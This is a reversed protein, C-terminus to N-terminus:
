PGGPDFPSWDGGSVFAGSIGDGAFSTVDGSGYWGMAPMGPQGYGFLSGVGQGIAPAAASFLAGLPNRQSDYMAQAAGAQFANQSNQSQAALVMAPTVYNSSLNYLSGSVTGYMGSMFNMAQNISNMQTQYASLGLDRLTTNLHAGSGSTGGAWNREASRIMTRTIDSQPLQGSLGSMINGMATQQMDRWGPFLTDMSRLIEENTFTNTREVLQENQQLNTLNATISQFAAQQPNVPEPKPLSPGGFLNGLASVGGAAIGGLLAGLFKERGPETDGTSPKDDYPSKM